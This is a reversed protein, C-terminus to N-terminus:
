RLDNLYRIDANVRNLLLKDKKKGFSTINKVVLSFPSQGVKNKSSIIYERENDNKIKFSIIDDKEIPYDFINTNPYYPNNNINVNNGNVKFETFINDTNM